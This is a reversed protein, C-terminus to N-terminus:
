SYFLEEQRISVNYGVKVVQKILAGCTDCAM